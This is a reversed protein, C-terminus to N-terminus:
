VERVVAVFLQSVVIVAQADLCDPFSDTPHLLLM